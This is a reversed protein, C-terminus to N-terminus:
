IQYDATRMTAKRVDEDTPAKGANREMGRQEPVTRGDGTTRNGNAAFMAASYGEAEAWASIRVSKGDVTVYGVPVKKTVKKGGETVETNEEKVEFAADGLLRHLIPASEPAWGETAVAKTIAERKERSADKAKLTDRETVIADVDGLRVGKTKLAEYATADDGTLVTAGEPILAKAADREETLTRNEKRRDGNETKLREVEQVIRSIEDPTGFAQYRNFAVEEAGTLERPMNSGDTRICAAVTRLANPPTDPGHRVAHVQPNLGEPQLGFRAFAGDGAHHSLHLREWPGRTGHRM